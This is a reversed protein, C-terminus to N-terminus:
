APLLEHGVGAEIWAHIRSVVKAATSIRCCRSKAIGSRLSLHFDTEDPPPPGRLKM